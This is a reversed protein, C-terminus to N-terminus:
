ADQNELGPDNDDPSDVPKTSSAELEARRRLAAKAARVRNELTKRVKGPLRRMQKPSAPGSPFLLYGSTVNATHLDAVPSGLASARGKRKSARAKAKKAEEIERKSKPRPLALLERLRYERELRKTRKDKPGWTRRAEIVKGVLGSAKHSGDPYAILDGDPVNRLKQNGM